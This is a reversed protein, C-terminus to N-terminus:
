EKPFCKVCCRSNSHGSVTNRVVQKPFWKASRIRSPLESIKDIAGHFKDVTVQDEEEVSVYVLVKTKVVFTVTVTKSIIGSSVPTIEVGMVVSM